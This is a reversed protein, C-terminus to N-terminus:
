IYIAEREADLIYVRGDSGVAVSNPGIMTGPESGTGDLTRIWTGDHEFVQVRRAAGSGEVVYIRHDQGMAMGIPNTLMGDAM